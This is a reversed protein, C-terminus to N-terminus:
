IVAVMAVPSAELGKLRLPFAFICKIKKGVVRATNVDEFILLTRETRSTNTDLLAHHSPFGDRAGTVASDASLTDLAIAKLNPFEKRLYLAADPALSPFDDTFADVNTSRILSYGTHIMLIDCKEIKERMCELDALTILSGKQKPLEILCPNEFYFNEIPIRDIPKGNPDFHSPADVHTGTHLHHFISSANNVDGRASSAEAIFKESPNTPWMPMGEEIPHSLEILM